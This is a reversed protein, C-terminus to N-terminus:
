SSPRRMADIAAALVYLAAPAAAGIAITTLAAIPISLIALLIPVRIDFGVDKIPHELRSNRWRKLHLALVMAVFGAVLGLAAAIVIRV